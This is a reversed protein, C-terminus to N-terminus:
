MEDKELWAVTGAGRRGKERTVLRRRWGLWGVDLLRFRLRLLSVVRRGLRGVVRGQLGGRLGRATEVRLNGPENGEGEWRRRWVPELWDDM